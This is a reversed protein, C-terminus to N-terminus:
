VDNEKGTPRTGEYVTERAAVEACAKCEEWDARVQATASECTQGDYPGCIQGRRYATWEAVVHPNYGLHYWASAEVRCSEGTLEALETAAALCVAMPDAAAEMEAIQATLQRIRECLLNSEEYQRAFAARWDPSEPGTAIAYLRDLGCLKTALTDATATHNM